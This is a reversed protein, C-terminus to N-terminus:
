SLGSLNLYYLALANPHHDGPLMRQVTREAEESKLTEARNGIPLTVLQAGCASNEQNCVGELIWCM